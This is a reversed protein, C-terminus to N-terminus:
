LLAQYVLQRLRSRIPHTDSPLLQTMFVVTLEEAPDVWFATSAAGGWSFEGASSLTRHRAADRVVAFGLGFGVGAYPVEAFVPRGFEELDAGGPLHNRTMYAVTRPGLLRVGDLEGGRLLMQTFRHYDGATSILGGGGSLFSPRRLEAGRTDMPVARRHRDASYLTAMRGAREGDIWFGTDDMGLPRFIRESLFEDLPRGSVMEVLRGLVDTAVSYNWQTGPEFLLPLEAWRDVAEALGMGRPAGRDFGARRYLEDVVSVHQFGYVLGSTHTLLHWVRVPEAAPRTVPSFAPGKEYVRVDAFAPLHRSVPDTLELLGEEYLMMVAVSTIPKSMSYIRFLTDPEVPAGSAVDRSGYASLHAIEGRRSVLALWGPLRGDDVYPAFHADIRRLRASDLGVDEPDCTVKLEGM